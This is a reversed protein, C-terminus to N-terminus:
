PRFSTGHEMESMETGTAAGEQRLKSVKREYDLQMKLKAKLSTEELKLEEARNGLQLKDANWQKNVEEQM